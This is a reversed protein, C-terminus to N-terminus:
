NKDGFKKKEVRFSSMTFRKTLAIIRSKGTSGILINIKEDDSQAFSRTSKIPIHQSFLAFEDENPHCSIWQMDIGKIFNFRNTYSGNIKWLLGQSKSFSHATNESKSTSFIGNYKPM